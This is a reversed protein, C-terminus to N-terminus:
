YDGGDRDQNDYRRVAEEKAKELWYDYVANYVVTGLKAHGVAPDNLAAQLKDSHEELCGEAIAELFAEANTPSYEDEELIQELLSEIGDDREAQEQYPQELWRDYDTM